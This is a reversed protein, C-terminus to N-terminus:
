DSSDFAADVIYYDDTEGLNDFDVKFPISCAEICAKCPAWQKHNEEYKIEDESLHADCIHCRM